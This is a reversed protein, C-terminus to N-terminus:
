RQQTVRFITLVILPKILKVRGAFLDFYTDMRRGKRLDALLVLSSESTAIM